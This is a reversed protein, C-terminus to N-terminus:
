QPQTPFPERALLPRIIGPRQSIRVRKQGIMALAAVRRCRREPLLDRILRAERTVIARFMLGLLHERRDAGITVDLM